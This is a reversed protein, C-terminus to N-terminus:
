FTIKNESYSPDQGEDKCAEHLFVDTSAECRTSLLVLDGASPLIALVDLWHLQAPIHAFGSVCPQMGPAGKPDM